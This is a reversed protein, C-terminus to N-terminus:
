MRVFFCSAEDEWGRGKDMKKRSTEEEDKEKEKGRKRSKRNRPLSWRGRRRRGGEEKTSKYMLRKRNERSERSQNGGKQPTISFIWHTYKQDGWGRVHRRTHTRARWVLKREIKCFIIETVWWVGKSVIYNKRDFFWKVLTKLKWPSGIQGIVCSRLGFNETGASKSAWCDRWTM